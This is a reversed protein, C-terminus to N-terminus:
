WLYNILRISKIIRIMKWLKFALALCGNPNKGDTFTLSMNYNGPPTYGPIFNVFVFQVTDGAAYSKAFPITDNHIFVGNLKVDM